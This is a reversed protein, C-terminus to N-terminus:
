FYWNNAKRKIKKKANQDSLNQLFCSIKKNSGGINKLALVYMMKDYVHLHIQRSEYPLFVALIFLLQFQTCLIQMNLDYSQMNLLIEM